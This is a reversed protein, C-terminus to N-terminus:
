VGKLHTFANAVCEETVSLESIDAASLSSLFVSSSSHSNLIGQLKESFLQSISQSGSVGDVSSRSLLLSRLGILRMFKSGSSDRTLAPLRQPWGKGGSTSSVDNSGDGKM